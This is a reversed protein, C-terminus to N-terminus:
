EVWTPRRCKKRKKKYQVVQQFSFFSLVSANKTVNAIFCKALEAADTKNKRKKKKKEREEKKDVDGDGM